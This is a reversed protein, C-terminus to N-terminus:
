RKRRLSWVLRAAAGLVMAAGTMLAPIQELTMQM